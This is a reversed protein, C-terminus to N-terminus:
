LRFYWYTKRYPDYTWYNYYSVNYGLFTSKDNYQLHDYLGRLLVYYANGGKKYVSFYENSTSVNDNYGTFLGFAQYSGMLVYDSSNNNNNNNNNSPQYTANSNPYPQFGRTFGWKANATHGGTTQLFDYSQVTITENELRYMRKGDGNNGIYNYTHISRQDTTLSGNENIFTTILAKEYIKIECNQMMPGLGWDVYYHYADQCLLKGYNQANATLLGVLLLASIALIRTINKMNIPQRNYAM